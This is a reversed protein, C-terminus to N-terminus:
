AGQEHFVVVRLVPLTNGTKVDIPEGPAKRVLIGQM